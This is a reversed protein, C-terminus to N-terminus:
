VFHMFPTCHTSSLSSSSSSFWLLLLFLVFYQFLFLWMKSQKAEGQKKTGLRWVWSIKNHRCWDENASTISMLLGCFSYVIGHFRNTIFDISERTRVKRSITFHHFPSRFTIKITQFNNRPSFFFMLTRLQTNCNQM